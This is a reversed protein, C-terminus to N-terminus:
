QLKWGGRFRGSVRVERHKPAKGSGKICRMNSLVRLTSTPVNLFLLDFGVFVAVFTCYAHTRAWASLYASVHPNACEKEAALLRQSIELLFRFRSLPLRPLCPIGAFCLSYAHEHELQCLSLCMCVHVCQCLRLCASVSICVCVHVCVSPCVCM